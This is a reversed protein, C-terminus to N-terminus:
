LWRGELLYDVDEPMIQDALHEALNGVQKSCGDCWTGHGKHARITAILADRDM